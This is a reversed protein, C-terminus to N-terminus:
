SSFASDAKITEIATSLTQFRSFEVTRCCAPAEQFQDFGRACRRGDPSPTRCRLDGWGEINCATEGALGVVGNLVIMLVAFMTDRGLTSVAESGFVVAAILVVEVIVISLTLVLTGLPEGLLDALRDAEEIVGSACWLIVVFLWIFLGAVFVPSSLDALWSHGIFLFLVVTVWASALRRILAM